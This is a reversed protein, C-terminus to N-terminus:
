NEFTIVLVSEYSVIVSFYYTSQIHDIKNNILVSQIHKVKTDSQLHRLDLPKFHRTTRKKLKYLLYSTTKIRKNGSQTAACITCPLVDSNLCKEFSFSLSSFCFM